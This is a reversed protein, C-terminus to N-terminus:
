LLLAVMTCIVVVTLSWLKHGDAVARKAVLEGVAAAAETKNLDDSVEKDLTSASALTM